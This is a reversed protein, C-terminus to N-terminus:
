YRKLLSDVREKEKEHYEDLARQVEERAKRIAVPIENFEECSLPQPEEKKPEVEQVEPKKKFFRLIM